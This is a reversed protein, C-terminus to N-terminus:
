FNQITSYNPKISESKEIDVNGCISDALMCLFILGIIFCLTKITEITKTQM